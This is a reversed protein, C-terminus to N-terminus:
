LNETEAYLMLAGVTTIAATEARLIRKGLSIVKGGANIAEEIEKETFGGESGIVVGVKMGSKISSFADKTAKMGEACEYPVLLLDLEKSFELMQKFTMVNGVEPIANRKSQKAASESISQWRQVKSKKKKDDLKVVCNVTEVPIIKHVGLEVSKQIILEMKDGKPLAQFLYIDIGLSTDNYNEEKIEVIVSDSLVEAIECLHSEGECSVLFKDGVSKRLVNVIHNYDAGDIIFCNGQRSGEKAFFNFM